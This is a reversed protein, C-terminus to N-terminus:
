CKKSKKKTPEPLEPYMANFLRILLDRDEVDEVMLMAQANDYPSEMPADALIKLASPSPKVLLRNDYIGGIIKGKYYLLYEGMMARYTIDSLGSLQQLIFQLFDNSSAM